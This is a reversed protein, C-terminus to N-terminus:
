SEAQATGTEPSSRNCPVQVRKISDVFETVGFVFQRLDLAVVDVGM